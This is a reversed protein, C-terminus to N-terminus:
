TILVDETPYKYKLNVVRRMIAVLITLMSVRGIFMTFIIVIKGPDSLEGTIGLSLGVTSFASFSEFAIPLLGKEGDFHSLLVISIGIVIISLSLIAFARRVSVPSIERKFIEIRDKGKAISIFNLVAIAFTSTKVGGGTSGPSAGIWMLLLIIMITYFHLASTDVTNFGATRPTAAGFFATVIKGFTGHEALTNNYELMYFLLTGAALLCMTTIVVIRANIGIIWPSYMVQKSFIKDLALHKLYTFANFIIPFGLGGLIFLGAISMHLLYNFRFGDEYLSNTLTSFGANCFGSVSHFISFFLHGGTLAHSQKSISLFIIVAGIVEILFTVIIIKKLTSFVEAIKDSNNMDQIMLRNQYSTSGKFFFGFYSTFTMIGIGGAQILLIIITQGFRTFFTGTDVVVLGTVCVASTSTFLADLFSIGSYTANPLMLLATGALIIFIFSTIFLQAPNLYQKNYGTRITALSRIFILVIAIHLWIRSNLAPMDYIGALNIVLSLLFFVLFTDVPWAKRQPRTKRFFYNSLLFALGSCLTVVYIWHLSTSPIVSKRIGADYILVLLGSLSITIFIKKFVSRLREKKTLIGSNKNVTM